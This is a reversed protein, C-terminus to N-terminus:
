DNSCREKEFFPEVDKARSTKRMTLLLILDFLLAVQKLDADNSMKYLARSIDHIYARAKDREIVGQMDLDVPTVSM